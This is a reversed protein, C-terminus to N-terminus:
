ITTRRRCCCRTCASAAGRHLAAGAVDGGRRAGRRRDRRGDADAVIAMARARGPVTGRASRAQSARQEAGVAAMAASARRRGHGALARESGERPLHSDSEDLGSPTVPVITSVRAPEDRLIASLVRAPTEAEFAKLGTVMEYLVAGFAFVDARTDVERGDLQEPAM